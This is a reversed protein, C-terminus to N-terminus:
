LTPIREALPQDSRRLGSMTRTARENADPLSGATGPRAFLYGQLSDCGMRLLTRAQAETEVGEATVQLGLSHAISLVSRIIPCDDHESEVSDKEPATGGNTTNGPTSQRGKGERRVTSMTAVYAGVILAAFGLVGVSITVTPEHITAGLLLISIRAVATLVGKIIRNASLGLAPEAQMAEAFKPDDEEFQKELQELMKQEQESLAM